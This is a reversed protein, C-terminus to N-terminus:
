CLIGTAPSGIVQFEYVWMAPDSNLYDVGYISAIENRFEELTGFGEKLADSHTMESIKQRYRGICKMMMRNTPCSTDVASVYLGTVIDKSDKRRTVTKRGEALANFMKHNFKIEPLMRCM